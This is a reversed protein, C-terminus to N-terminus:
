KSGFIRNLFAAIDGPESSRSSGHMGDREDVLQSGVYPTGLKRDSTKPLGFYNSSGDPLEIGLRARTMAVYFLRIESEPDRMLRESESPSSSPFFADFDGDLRVYDWEKGKARHATSLNVQASSENAECNRLAALLNDEGINSVLNVFTGLHAGEPEQSFQIVENWNQFGFFEPLDSTFGAKLREVHDLLRKLETSGGVINCKIGIRQLELLKSMVGANTRSLIANPHVEAIHSDLSKSGRISTVAALRTLVKTAASAIRDGFRFSQSLMAKNSTQVRDMANVAGRWEYIQQYPDGVYIIPCQQKALVSLIVPDSDQAEDLMVYDVQFRPESLAWLKQYGSHGLPFSKQRDLMMKWLLRTGKVAVNTFSTFEYDKLLALKGYRPFHSPLPMDDASCLFQRLSDLLLAGFSQRTLVLNKGCPQYPPLNLTDAVLNANAQGTMKQSDYGAQASVARFAVSHNTTCTINSPFSNRADQAIARNFALYHGQKASDNSIFRLTSTKGAGAYAEIKLSNGERSLDLILQQEETPKV